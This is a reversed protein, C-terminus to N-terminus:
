KKGMIKKWKDFEPQLFDYSFKNLEENIQQLDYNSYSQEMTGKGEWGIIANIITSILRASQMALSANKRFSHFDYGKDKIGIDSLFKFLYRDLYKNNYQGNKTKCKPFIFDEGVANLKKKKHEIYDIFGLDLLQKHIPVFRESADNKLHKISHNECFHICWLDDKLVIDNYQLTIAANANARAGTFLAIMCIWFMDPEDKFFDHKVDFIHKLQDKSYAIHPNRESKKTKEITPMVMLINDKYFDPELKCAFSVFEKVYRLKQRKNDNQIDKQEVIINSLTQINEITHFKSYDDDDSLNLKAFIDNFFNTKRNKEAEGNNAKDLMANLIYKLSHKPVEHHNVHVIKEFFKDGLNKEILDYKDKMNQLKELMNKQVNYKAINQNVETFLKVFDIITKPDNDQSLFLEDPINLVLCYANHSISPIRKVVKIKSYLDCLNDFKSNFDKFDNMKALAEYYNNTHLSFCLYRRKENVKALEIRCYFVNNRLWLHPQIGMNAMCKAM